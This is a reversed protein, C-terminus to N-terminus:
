TGDTPVVCSCLTTYLKQMAFGEGLNLQISIQSGVDSM